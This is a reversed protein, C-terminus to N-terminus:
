DEKIQSVYTTGNGARIMATKDAKTLNYNILVEEPTLVRNYIRVDQINGNLSYSSASGFVINSVASLVGPCNLEGVKIGDIYSCKNSGDFSLCVNHWNGDILGSGHNSDKRVGNVIVSTRIEGTLRPISIELGSSFSIIHYSNSPAGLIKVWASLTVYSGSAINLGAGAYIYKSINGDFSYCKQGLGAAVTAGVVTGDQGNGSYDRADGNLPYHAILGETVGVESINSLELDANEKVSFIKVNGYKMYSDYNRSDYGSLLEDISPETGDCLDVRPYCWEQRTNPDTSYYLYTRFNVDTASPNWRLPSACYRSISGPHVKGQGVKYVGQTPEEVGTYTTPFVYYVFLQWETQIQGNASGAGVIHWYPNVQTVGAVSEVSGCGMFFLGNGVVSRKAWVSFRYKKSSDIPIKSSWGGDEDSTSDNGGQWVIIHKGFPDLDYVFNNETNSNQNPMVGSKHSSGIVTAVVGVSNWDSYDFLGQKNEYSILNGVKLNGKDDLNARSQYIEKIDETTLATAYIRLDDFICANTWEGNTDFSNFFIDSWSSLDLGTIVYHNWNNDNAPALSVEGNKYIISGTGVGHHYFNGTGGSTAMIYNGGPNNANIALWSGTRTRKRWFSISCKKLTAILTKNIQLYKFDVMKSSLRGIKCDEVFAPTNAVTLPLSDNGYDSKDRVIISDRTGNVFPTAHDKKELQVGCFAVSGLPTNVEFRFAVKVSNAGGITFTCSFRVWGSKSPIQKASSGLSGDEYLNSSNIGFIYVQIETAEAGINKCWGSLTWTDGPVTAALGTRQGGTYSEHSSSLNTVVLSNTSVPEDGFKTVYPSCNTVPFSTYYTATDLSPAVNVTPEEVDDFDYKLVLAKSLDYIEKDSLCHDYIRVDQLYCNTYEDVGPFDCGAAFFTTNTTVTRITPLIDWEKVLSGNAFFKYKNDTTVLSIHYWTDLNFKFSNDKFYELTSQNVVQLKFYGFNDVQLVHSWTTDDDQFGVGLSFDSYAKLNFWCSITTNNVPINKFVPYDSKLFSTTGNFYASKNYVIGGDIFTCNPTVANFSNAADKGDEFLPYRAILSM